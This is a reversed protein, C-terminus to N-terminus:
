PIEASEPERAPEAIEITARLDAAGACTVRESALSAVVPSGDRFTGGSGLKKAEHEPLVM